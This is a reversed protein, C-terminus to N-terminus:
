CVIYTDLKLIFEFNNNIDTYSLKREPFNMVLRDVIVSYKVNWKQVGKLLADNSETEDFFITENKRDWAM